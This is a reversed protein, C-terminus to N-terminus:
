VSGSITRIKTFFYYYKYILLLVIVIRGPVNHMAFFGILLLLSVPILICLKTALTMSRDKVFSDLHRQYLQTSLFWLHFRRSSKAFCGAALLLFPTTPLVPVVVGLAGIAFFLFGLVAFFAKM